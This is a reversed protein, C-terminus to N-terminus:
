TLPLSRKPNCNPNPHLKPNPNCNSGLLKPGILGLGLGGFQIIPDHSGLAFFDCKM